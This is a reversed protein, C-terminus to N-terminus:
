AAPPPAPLDPVSDAIEKTKAAMADAATSIDALHQMDAPSIPAGAALQDKLDSIMKALNAEDAAINTLSDNVSSFAAQVKTAFDSIVSMLKQNEKRVVKKISKFFCNPCTCM